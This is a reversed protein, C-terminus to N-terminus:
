NLKINIGAKIDDIFQDRKERAETLTYEGYEGIPKIDNMNWRYFFSKTGKPNIRIYLGNTDKLTYRKSRPKANKIEKDTLM